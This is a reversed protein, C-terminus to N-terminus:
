FAQIEKIFLKLAVVLAGMKYGEQAIVALAIDEGLDKVAISGNEATIIMEKLNGKGTNDLMGTITALMSASDAAILDADRNSDNFFSAMELGDSTALIAGEIGMKKVFEELLQPGQSNLKVIDIDM